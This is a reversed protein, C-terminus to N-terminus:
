TAMKRLCSVSIGGYDNLLMENDLIDCAHNWQKPDRNGRRQCHDLIVHMTEHAAVFGTEPLSLKDFFTRNWYYLLRGDKMGVAARKVQHNDDVFQPYGMQMVRWFLTCRSNSHMTYMANLKRLRKLDAADIM